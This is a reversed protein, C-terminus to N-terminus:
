PTEKGRLEVRTVEAIARIVAQFGELDQACLRQDIKEELTRVVQGVQRAVERGEGALEVLFSRRDGPSPRRVVLRREELRDLMSTLTSGKHGFVRGLEGVPCPAYSGLYALLHGEPNSAGLEAMYGELYVGIQRTGKHLPSLFRLKGPSETASPKQTASSTM